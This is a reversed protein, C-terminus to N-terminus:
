DQKEVGGCHGGRLSLTKFRAFREHDISGMWGVILVVAVTRIM